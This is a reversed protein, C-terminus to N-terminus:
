SAIKDTFDIRTYDPHIILLKKVRGIENSISALFNDIDSDSLGKEINEIFKM